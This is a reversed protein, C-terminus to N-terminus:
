SAELIGDLADFDIKIHRGRNDTDWLFIGNGNIGITRINGDVKTNFCIENPKVEFWGDKGDVDFLIRGTDADVTIRGQKGVVELKGKVRM